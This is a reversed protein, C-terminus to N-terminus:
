VRDYIAKPIVFSRRNLVAGLIKSENDGFFGFARKIIERRTKGEDIVLTIGDIFASMIFGDKYENLSPTDILVIDYAEKAKLLVGQM